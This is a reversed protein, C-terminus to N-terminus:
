TISILIQTHRLFILFMIKKETSGIRGLWDNWGEVLLADFGDKSAFDIYDKVKKNNAAHAMPNLNSYDTENIRVSSLENTYWWTSKSRYYDNGM